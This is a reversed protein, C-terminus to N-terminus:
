NLIQYLSNPGALTSVSQTYDDRDESTEDKTSFGTDLNKIFIDENKLILISLQVASGM